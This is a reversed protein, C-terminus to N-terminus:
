QAEKKLQENVRRYDDLTRVDGAQIAALRREDRKMGDARTMERAIQKQEDSLAVPNKGGRRIGGSLNPSVDALITDRLKAMTDEEQKEQTGKFEDRHAILGAVSKGVYTDVADLIARRNLLGQPNMRLAEDVVPRLQPEILKDFAGGGWEADIKARMENLNSEAVQHALQSVVPATARQIEGRVADQPSNYLQQTFDDASLPLDPEPDPQRSAADIRRNLNEIASQMNQLTQTLQENLPNVAAPEPAPTPTPEPAPTDAAEVPEVNAFPDDNPM